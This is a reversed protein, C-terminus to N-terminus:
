FYSFICFFFSSCLMAFTSSYLAHAYARISCLICTDRPCLTSHSHMQIDHLYRHHTASCLPVCLPLSPNLWLGDEHMHSHIAASIRTCIVAYPQMHSCIHVGPQSQRQLLAQKKYCAIKDVYANCGQGRFISSSHTKCFDPSVQEHVLM